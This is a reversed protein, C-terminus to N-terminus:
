ILDFIEQNEHKYSILKNEYEKKNKTVILRESLKDGCIKKREEVL